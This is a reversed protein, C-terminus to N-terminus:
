FVVFKTIVNMKQMCTYIPLQNLFFCQCFTIIRHVIETICIILFLLYLKNIFKGM